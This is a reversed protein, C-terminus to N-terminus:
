PTYPPLVTLTGIDTWVSKYDYYDTIQAKVTYTTGVVVSQPITFNASRITRTGGVQYGIVGNSTITLPIEIDATVLKLTPIGDSGRSAFTVFNTTITSGVRGQGGSGSTAVPSIPTTVNILDITPYDPIDVAITFTGVSTWPSSKGTADTARVQITLVDGINASGPPIVVKQIQLASTRVNGLTSNNQEVVVTGDSKIFRLAAANVLVDDSLAYRVGVTTSTPGAAPMVAKYDAISSPTFVTVIPPDIDTPVWTNKITKLIYDPGWLELGTSSPGCVTLCYIVLNVQYEMEPDLDQVTLTLGPLAGVSTVSTRYRSELSLSMSNPDFGPVAPILFKATIGGSFDTEMEQTVLIPQPPIPGNFKKKTLFNTWTRGGAEWAALADAPWCITYSKRSLDSEILKKVGKDTPCDVQDGVYAVAGGEKQEVSVRDPAETLPILQDTKFTAVPSTNSQNIRSNQYAIKLSPSYNTNGALGTCLLQNPVAEIVRKDCDTGALQLTIKMVTPNYNQISPIALTVKVTKNSPDQLAVTPASVAPLAPAASVPVEISFYKRTLAGRDNVLVSCGITEGAIQQAIMESIQILNGNSLVKTFSIATPSSMIGWIVESNSQSLGFTKECLAQSGVAWNNSPRIQYVPTFLKAIENKDARISKKATGLLNTVSVACDIDLTQSKEAVDESLRMISSRGDPLEEGNGYSWKYTVTSGDKPTDFLCLAQAGNLNKEITVRPNKVEPRAGKDLQRTITKGAVFGKNTASVACLIHSGENKELFEGTVKFTGNKGILTSESLAPNKPDKVVHWEQSSSDYTGGWTFGDCSLEENGVFPREASIGSIGLNGVIKPESPLAVTVTRRISGSKGSAIVDCAFIQGVDSNLITVSQNTSNLLRSPSSWSISLDLSNKWSGTNCQLSGGPIAKGTITPKKSNTPVARNVVRNISRLDKIGKQIDSEYYTVRAFVSPKSTDCNRAGWSTVGVIFDKGSSRMLLPGGSDGSCAGAWVKERAIYLGAGLMINSNFAAGYEKVAMRDLNLLQTTGLLEPSRDNQNRGWGFLTFRSRANVSKAIAKNGISPFTSLLVPESLKILGIDNAFKTPNYRPHAWVNSAPILEVEEELTTAGYKVFYNGNEFVCHAATLVVDSSILTGTCGYSIQEVDNTPSIWISVVWPAQESPENVNDGFTVANGQGGSLALLILSAAASILLRVKQRPSFRSLVKM